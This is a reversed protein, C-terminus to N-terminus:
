LKTKVKKEEIDGELAGEFVEPYELVLDVIYAGDRYLAFRSNEMIKKINNRAIQAYDEKNDDSINYLYLAHYVDIWWNGADDVGLVEKKAEKFICKALYVLDIYSSERWKVKPTYGLIYASRDSTSLAYIKDFKRQLALLHLQDKLIYGSASSYELIPEKGSSVMCMVYPSCDELVETYMDENNILRFCRAAILGDSAARNGYKNNNNKESLYNNYVKDIYKSNGIGDKIYSVLIKGYTDYITKIGVYNEEDLTSIEEFESEMKEHNKKGFYRM